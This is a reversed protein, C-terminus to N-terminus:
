KYESMLDSFQQNDEKNFYIVKVDKPLNAVVKKTQDSILYLGEATLDFRKHRRYGTTPWWWWRWFPWRCYSPTRAWSGKDGASFGLIASISFPRSWSWFREPSSCRWTLKGRFGEGVWIGLVIYQIFGALIMAVGIFGALRYIEQRDIKMLKDSHSHSHPLPSHPNFMVGM